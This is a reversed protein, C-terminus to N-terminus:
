ASRGKIIRSVKHTQCGGEDWVSEIDHLFARRSEPCKLNIAGIKAFAHEFFPATKWEGFMEKM